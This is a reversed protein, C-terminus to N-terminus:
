STVVRFSPSGTDSRYWAVSSRAVPLEIGHLRPSLHCPRFSPVVPSVGIVARRRAVERRARPPRFSLAPSVTAGSLVVDIM